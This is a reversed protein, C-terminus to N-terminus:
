IINMNTIKLREVAKKSTNSVIWALLIGGFIVITYELYGGLLLPSSDRLPQVTTRLAHCLYINALYSELSVIGM